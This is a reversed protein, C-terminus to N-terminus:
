GKRRRVVFGVAALGALMLAYTGPEPIAAAVEFAIGHSRFTISNILTGGNTGITFLRSNANNGNAAFDPNSLVGLDAGSFTVPAGDNTAIDLFNYTDPSGWLFSFATVGESFSITASGGTSIVSYPDTNTLTLPALRVNTVSGSISETVNGSMSTFDLSGYYNGAASESFTLAANANLAAFAAAAIMAKRADM